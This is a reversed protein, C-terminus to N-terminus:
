APGLALWVRLPHIGMGSIYALGEVRRSTLGSPSAEVQWAGCSPGAVM